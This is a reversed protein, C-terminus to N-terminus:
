IKVKHVLYWEGKTASIVHDSGPSQGSFAPLDREIIGNCTRNYAIYLQLVRVCDSSAQVMLTKATHEVQAAADLGVIPRM